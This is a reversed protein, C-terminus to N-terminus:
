APLEVDVTVGAGPAARVAVSGGAAAVRERLGALGFGAPRRDADFGRGDDRIRLALVDSQYRLLVDVRSARAHRRVNALAEQGARLAVVELEAPLPRPEGEVTLTAGGPLDPGIRDVVQRLAAPLSATRLAPPTAAAILSRAEALNERATERARRLYGRAIDENKFEAELADLLLLVSTFGQAVTDHIDRAIREREALAGAERSVTALEARTADLEAVLRARQVSQDIIRSIWLGVGVASVLALGAPVLVSVPDQFRMAFVTAVAVVALASGLVAQRVPLMAWVHPFLVFLLVTGAPAVAVVGATLVVAVVIYWWGSRSRPAKLLRAGALPYWGALVGVLAIGLVKAGGGVEPDVAVLGATVLALAAFAIHWGVALRFWEHQGPDASASM